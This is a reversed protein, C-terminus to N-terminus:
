LAQLGMYRRLGVTILRITDLVSPWHLEEEETHEHLYGCSLNVSPIGYEAYTMADSIGGQCTRWDSQGILRATEAWFMGTEEPCFPMWPCSTVIDRRNRRDAVVAMDVDDLWEPAIHQSGVRGIEEACTFAVKITGQLRVLQVRYLTELIIAIGARDDAGLIGASSRLLQGEWVVERGPEFDVVTDMHASLLVTPGDGYKREALVNGFSDQKVKMQMGELKNMVYSAVQHEEGSVGPLALLELLTKKPRYM